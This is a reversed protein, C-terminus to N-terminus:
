STFGARTRGCRRPLATITVRPWSARATTPCLSAEEVYQGQQAAVTLSASPAQRCGRRRATYFRSFDSAWSRKTPILGQSTGGGRELDTVRGDPDLMFIAYDKVGEVLWRFREESQRLAATAEEREPPSNPRSERGRRGPCPGPHLAETIGSIMTCSLFFVALSIWDAPNAMAFQGAPEIWFYDAVLASLATALLGARLGGYLAALM